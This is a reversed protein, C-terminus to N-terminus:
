ELLEKVVSAVLALGLAGLFLYALTPVRPAGPVKEEYGPHKRLVVYDGEASGTFPADVGVYGPAVVRWRLPALDQAPISVFVRGTNDAPAMDTLPEAAKGEALKVVQAQAGPVPMGTEDAIVVFTHIMGPATAQTEEQGFGWSEHVIM